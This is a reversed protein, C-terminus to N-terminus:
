AFDHPFFNAECEGKRVEDTILTTQKGDSHIPELEWPNVWMSAGRDPDEESEWVVEISNWPRKDIDPSICSVHGRYHVHKKHEDMFLMKFKEGIHWKKQKANQVRSQLVM